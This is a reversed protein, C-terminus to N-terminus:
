VKLGQFEEEVKPVEGELGAIKVELEQVKAELECVLERYCLLEQREAGLTFIAANHDLESVPKLEM